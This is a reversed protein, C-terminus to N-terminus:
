RIKIFKETKSKVSTGKEDRLIMIYYYTGNALDFISKEEM